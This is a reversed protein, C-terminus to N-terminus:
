WTSYNALEYLITAKVGSAAAGLNQITAYVTYGLDRTRRNIVTAEDYSYYPLYCAVGCGYSANFANGYYVGNLKAGSYHGEPVGSACVIDFGGVYTSEVYTDGGRKANSFFNVRFTTAVSSTIAVNRIDIRDVQPTSGSVLEFDFAVGSAYSEASGVAGLVDFTHSTAFLARKVRADDAM